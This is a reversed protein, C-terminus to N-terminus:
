WAGDIASAFRAPSNQGNKDSDALLVYQGGQGVRGDRGVLTKEIFKM